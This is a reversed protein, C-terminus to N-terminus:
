EKSLKRSTKRTGPRRRRGCYPSAARCMRWWRRSRPIMALFIPSAYRSSSFGRRPLFAAQRIPTLTRAIRLPIAHVLFSQYASFCSGRIALGPSLRSMRVRKRPILRPPRSLPRRTFRPLTLEKGASQFSWRSAHTFFPHPLCRQAQRADSLSCCVM